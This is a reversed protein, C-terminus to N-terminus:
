EADAPDGDVELALHGALEGARLDGGAAAEVLAGVSAAVLLWTRDNVADPDARLAPPAPIVARLGSAAAAFAVIVPAEYGSRKRALEDDGRVLQAELVARVRAASAGGAVTAALDDM